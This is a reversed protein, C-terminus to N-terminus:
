CSGHVEILSLLRATPRVIERLFDSLDQESGAEKIGPAFDDQAEIESVM